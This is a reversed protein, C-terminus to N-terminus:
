TGARGDPGDILDLIFDYVMHKGFYYCNNKCDRNKCNKDQKYRRYLKDTDRFGEIVKKRLEKLNKVKDM